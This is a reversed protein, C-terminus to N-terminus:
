SYLYFLHGAIYCRNSTAMAGGRVQAVANISPVGVASFGPLDQASFVYVVLHRLEQPTLTPGMLVMGGRAGPGAEAETAIEHQKIKTGTPM